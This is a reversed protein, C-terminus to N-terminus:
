VNFEAEKEKNWAELDVGIEEKLATLQPIKGYSARYLDADREAKFTDTVEDYYERLQEATFGYKKYLVYLCVADCNTNVADYNKMMIDQEATTMLKKCINEAKTAVSHQKEYESVTKPIIVNM